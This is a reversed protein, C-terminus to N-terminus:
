GRLTDKSEELKIRESETSINSDATTSHERLNEIIARNNNSAIKAASSQSVAHNQLSHAASNGSRSSSALRAMSFAFLLVCVFALGAYALLANFSGGGERWVGQQILPFAFVFSAIGVISSAAALVYFGGRAHRKTRVEISPNIENADLQILELLKNFM